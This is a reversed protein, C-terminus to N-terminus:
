ALITTKDLTSIMKRQKCIIAAVANLMKLTIHTAPKHIIAPNDHL